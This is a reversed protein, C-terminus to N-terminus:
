VHVKTDVHVHGAVLRVHVSDATYFCFAQVRYNTLFIGKFRVQTTLNMLANDSKDKYSAAKYRLYLIFMKALKIAVIKNAAYYTCSKLLQIYSLIVYILIALFSSLLNETQSM